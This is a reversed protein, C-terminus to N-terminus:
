RKNAKLWNSIEEIEMVQADVINTAMTKLQTNNGHHLYASANDIAGQHHVVMLTAFDNDIDGTIIQIDAVQGGKMMNDMQEAAFSPDSNDATLGALITNFQQIEAQQETIIKQAIRKLSDNAGSQLEVSSMNIAGQHHMIMMKAFDIEPDNTKPMAMMRDMMVHMSDMMRNKDHAQLQIGNNDDKSCATFMVILASGLVFVAKKM